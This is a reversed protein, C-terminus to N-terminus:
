VIRVTWGLMPLGSRHVSPHTTRLHLRLHMEISYDSMGNMMVMMM